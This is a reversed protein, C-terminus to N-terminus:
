KTLLCMNVRQKSGTLVVGSFHSFAAKTGRNPRGDM